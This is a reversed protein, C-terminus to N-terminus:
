LRLILTVIEFDLESLQKTKNSLLYAFKSIMYEHTEFEWWLSTSFSNRKLAESVSIHAMKLAWSRQVDLTDLKSLPQQFCVPRWRMEPTKEWKGVM